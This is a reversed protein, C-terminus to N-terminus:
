EGSEEDEFVKYYLTWGRVRYTYGDGLCIYYDTGATGNVIPVTVTTFSSKSASPCKFVDGKGIGSEPDVSTSINWPGGSPSIILLDMKVLIGKQAPIKIWAYGNTSGCVWTDGSYSWNANYSNIVIDSFYGGTQTYKAYGNTVWISYTVDGERFFVETKKQSNGQVVNGNTKSTRDVSLNASSWAYVDEHLMSAEKTKDDYSVEITVLPWDLSNLNSQVATQVNIARKAEFVTKHGESDEIDIQVNEYNQPVVPLYYDGAEYYVDGEATIIQRASFEISSSGAEVGLFQPGALSDPRAHILGCFEKGDNDRFTVRKIDTLEFTEGNVDVTQGNSALNFRIFGCVSRLSVESGQLVGIAANNATILTGAQRANYVPATKMSFESVTADYSINNMDSVYAVYKVNSGPSVNGSFEGLATGAGVDLSFRHEKGESDIVLLKDSADWLAEVSNGVEFSAVFSSAGTDDIPEEAPM